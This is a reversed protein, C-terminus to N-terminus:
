AFNAQSLLGFTMHEGEYISKLGLVFITINNTM